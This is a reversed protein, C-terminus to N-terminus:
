ATATEVLDVAPFDIETEIVHNLYNTLLNFTVVAVTELVEGQTVGADAAAKFQEDTIWGRNENVQLALTVIAQAKPDGAEGRQAAVTQDGTLGAGKGIVTHAAACYSCKNANAIALAIQERIAASLSAGGLAGSFELYSKLVAPSHAMTTLLNPTGGLKSKVVDLLDKADGTADAHQIPSIRPM